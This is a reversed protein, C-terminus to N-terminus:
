NIWSIDWWFLLAFDFLISCYTVVCSVGQRRFCLQSVDCAPACWSLGVWQLPNYLRQFSLCCSWKTRKERSETSECTWQNIDAIAIDVQSAQGTNLPEGTCTDGRHCLTETTSMPTPEWQQLQLCATTAPQFSREATWWAPQQLTRATM